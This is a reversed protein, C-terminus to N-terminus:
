RFIDVMSPLSTDELHAYLVQNFLVPANLNWNHNQAATRGVDMIGGTAQPLTHILDKASQKMVRYERKGVVILTPVSVNELGDPLRFRVNESMVEAFRVDTLQQYDVEFPEFYNDPIGASWRMNLRTYAKSGKFPEVGFRYTWHLISPTLLKTLMLPRVLASSVFARNIRDPYSALLQVLVQAGLSLGVVHAKSNHARDRILREVQQVTEHITFRHMNSQGHGPMDPVLCHYHQSLATVQPEWMWGAGGGGHLFLVTAANQRGTEKVYLM